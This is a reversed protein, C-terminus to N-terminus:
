ERNEKKIKKIYDFCEQHIKADEPCERHYNKCQECPVSLDESLPIIM